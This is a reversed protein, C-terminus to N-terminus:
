ADSVKFLDYHNEFLSLLSARLLRKNPGSLPNPLHENRAMFSWTLVFSSKITVLTQWSPVSCWMQIVFAFLQPCNNPRNLLQFNNASVEKTKICANVPSKLNRLIRFNKFMWFARSPEESTRIGKTTQLGHNLDLCVMLSRDDRTLRKKFVFPNNKIFKSTLSNQVASDASAESKLHDERAPSEYMSYTVIRPMWM